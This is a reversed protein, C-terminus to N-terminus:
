FELFVEPNEKLPIGRETKERMNTSRRTSRRRIGSRRRRIIISRSFKKGTVLQSTKLHHLGKHNEELGKHKPRNALSRQSPAHLKGRNNRSTRGWCTDGRCQRM